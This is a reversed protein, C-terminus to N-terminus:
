YDEYNQDQLNFFIKLEDDIKLELDKKIMNRKEHLFDIKDKKSQLINTQCKIDSFWEKIFNPINRQNLKSFSENMKDLMMKPKEEYIGYFHNYFITILYIQSIYYKKMNQYLNSKIFDDNTDDWKIYYPKDLDLSLVCTKINKGNFREHNNIDERTNRILYHNYISEILVENYNLSSFQPKLKFLVIDTDNYGVINIINYIKYESIESTYSIHHDYLFRMNPFQSSINGWIQSLYEIQRYHRIKYEEIENSDEIKHYIHIIDYIDNITIDSYKGEDIIRIIFYLIITDIWELNIIMNTDNRAIFETTFLKIKDIREILFSHYKKYDGKKSSYDLIPIFGSDKKNVSDLLKLYKSSKKVNIIDNDIVKKLLIKFQNKKADDQVKGYISLISLIMLSSYRIKHHKIDLIRKDLSVPIDQDIDYNDYETNRIINEYLEKYNGTNDYKVIKDLKLTKRIDISPPLKNQIPNNKELFDYIRTHIDDNNCEVRIYLKEKFRTAGVHLLSEYILNNKECSYVMLAKETFGIMFAVPRGDGKSSHISVCRTYEDSESLDISKGDESKHFICYEKYTEEDPFRSEWYERIKLCIAEMLPNKTVFPTIFIFDKPYRKNEEAEKIYHKMVEEAEGTILSENLEDAYICNGPFVCLDNPSDTFPGSKYPAMQIEPLGFKKFPVLHNLFRINYLSEFRNSENVAEHICVNIDRHIFKSYNEYKNTDSPIELDCIRTFANHPISISQLKDGVIYMDAGTDKSVKILAEMYDESLDQMEDGIILTKELFLGEKTFSINKEIRIQKIVDDIWSKFKDVSNIETKAAISWIFSDITAIIIRKKTNNKKFFYKIDHKKSKEEIKIIDIDLKDEELQDEFEQMIVHVASHAKTLYLKTEYEDEINILQVAGYTKGNGAGKQIVHLNPMQHSTTNM